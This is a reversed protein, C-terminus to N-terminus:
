EQRQGLIFECDEKEGSSYTCVGNGHPLGEIFQGQFSAGGPYTIKGEGHPLGDTFNGMYISGDQHTVVGFGDPIDRELGTSNEVESTGTRTVKSINPEIRTEIQFNDSYHPRIILWTAVAIVVLIAAGLVLQKPKYEMM